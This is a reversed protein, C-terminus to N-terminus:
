VHDRSEIVCAGPIRNCMTGHSGAPAERQTHVGNGRVAKLYMPSRSTTFWRTKDTHAVVLVKGIRVTSGVQLQSKVRQRSEEEWVEFLMVDGPSSGGCLYVELVTDSRGGKSSGKKGPKGKGKVKATGPGQSPVVDGRLNRFDFSLICGEVVQDRLVGVTRIDRPLKVRALPESM